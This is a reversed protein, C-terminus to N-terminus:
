DELPTGVSNNSGQLFHSMGPEWAAHVTEGVRIPRAFWAEDGMTIIFEEGSGTELALKVFTGQYETNIVRGSVGNRAPEDPVVRIRDRRVSFRVEQGPQVGPAEPLDWAMGGPAVVVAGTGAVSEVKGSLVNQGGMFRAVYPSHPHNYIERPSAAQEILGHDMVVVQDALAIAEPQTHTVHIFTIGLENQLRKLEVRMRLRLFEDLASLPEDLLLVKPNTILARALAVRQQQGGSLESPLREALHGLQVRDLMERARMRREATAVGKVRLSFAVNDTLSLHPFLAYNQFMLATGRSGTRAHTVDEGGILITGASPAEHGAIMRLLTTKGCGSPGIMCCYSGGEIVLDVNNVARVPGYLKSVGRIDIRSESM